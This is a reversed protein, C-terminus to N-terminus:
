EVVEVEGVDLDAVLREAGLDRLRQDDLLVAEADLGLQGGLDGLHLQPDVLNGDAVAPSRVLLPLLDAPLVAHAGDVGDDLVADSPRALPRAWKAVDRAFHAGPDQDPVDASDLRWLDRWVAPPRGPRAACLAAPVDAPILDRRASRPRFM